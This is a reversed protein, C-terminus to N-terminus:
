VRYLRALTESRPKGSLKANLEELEIAEEQLEVIEEIPKNLREM